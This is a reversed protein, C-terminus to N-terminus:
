FQEDKERLGNLFETFSDAVLYYCEAQPVGDILEAERDWFYVSGFDDKSVSICLINERASEGFPIFKDPM